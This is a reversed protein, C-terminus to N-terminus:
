ALDTKASYPLKKRAVVGAGGCSAPLVVAFIQMAEALFELM